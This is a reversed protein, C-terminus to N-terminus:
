KPENKDKGAAEFEKLAEQTKNYLNKKSQGKIKNSWLYIQVYLHANLNKLQDESKFEEVIPDTIFVTRSTRYFLDNPLEKMFTIIKDLKEKFEKPVEKHVRELEKMGEDVIKPDEKYEIKLIDTKFEVLNMLELRLKMIGDILSKITESVLDNKMEGHQQKFKEITESM